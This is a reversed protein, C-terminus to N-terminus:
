STLDILLVRLGKFVQSLIWAYNLHSSKMDIDALVDILPRKTKSSSSTYYPIINYRQLPLCAAATEEYTLSDAHGVVM